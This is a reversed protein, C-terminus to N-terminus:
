HQPPPRYLQHLVIHYLQHPLTRPYNQMQAWSSYDTEEKQYDCVGRKGQAAPRNGEPNTGSKANIIRRSFDFYKFMSNAMRGGMSSSVLRGPWRLLVRGMSAQGKQARSENIFV